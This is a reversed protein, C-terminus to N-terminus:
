WDDVFSMETESPMTSIFWFSKFKGFCSFYTKLTANSNKLVCVFTNNRPFLSFGHAELNWNESIVKAVYCVYLFSEHVSNQDSFLFTWFILFQSTHFKNWFESKEDIICELSKLVKLLITIMGFSLAPYSNLTSTNKLNEWIPGNKSFSPTLM